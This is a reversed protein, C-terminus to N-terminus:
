RLLNVHGIKTVPNSGPIDFEYSLHYVYVGMQVPQHNITGDWRALPDTTTFIEKGWRDFIVFEYSSMNCMTVPYFYTNLKDDNPTFANPIFLDCVCSQYTVTISDTIMGCGNTVQVRYNGLVSVGFTPNTSNDQWVYTSGPSTADLLLTAGDCLLTDPGLNVLPFNLYQIVSTDADTCGNVDVKVFYTGPLSVTFTPNTSNDQWLYTAGATTVDYNLTAGNCLTTDNGLNVVPIPSFTVDISDTAVGCSNTVQVWYTGTTNVNLTPNTSNDQWVYTAGATTGNLLLNNGGCLTTDNGLNVSISNGYTVDISDTAACGNISVTVWFTGATTISFTPNTSNDQWLYTAGATTVDLLLQDGPCFSTDNGLNVVPPPTYNIVVTDTTSGCANSVQVYYTGAVTVNFTPNTSNDQWIYTAGATTADLLLNDGQCLTTDNGIDVQLTPNNYNQMCGPPFLYCTAGTAPFLWDVLAPNIPDTGGNAWPEGGDYWFNIDGIGVFAGQNPAGFDTTTFYFGFNTCTGILPTSGNLNATAVLQNAVPLGDMGKYANGVFAPACCGLNTAEWGGQASGDLAIYANANPTIPLGTLSSAIQAAANASQMCCSVEYQYYVKGGADIFASIQATLPTFDNDGFFCLWDYGNVPDNCTSTFGAPLNFPGPNVFVTHGNAIIATILENGATNYGASNMIYIRDAFSSIVTFCTIFLILIQKKM